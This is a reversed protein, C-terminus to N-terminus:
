TARYKNCLMFQLISLRDLHKSIHIAYMPFVFRQSHIHLM